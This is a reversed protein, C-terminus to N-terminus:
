GLVRYYFVGVVAIAAPWILDTLRLPFLGSFGAVIRASAVFLILWLGWRRMQWYGVLAIASGALATGAGAAQTAGLSARLGSQLVVGSVVFVTALWGLICFASLL